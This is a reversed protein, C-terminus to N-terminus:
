CYWGVVDGVVEYYYYYYYYYYFSFIMGDLHVGHKVMEVGFWCCYYSCYCYWDVSAVSSCDYCCCYHSYGIAVADFCCSCYSDIAAGVAVVAVTM